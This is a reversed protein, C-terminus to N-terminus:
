LHEFGALAVPRGAADVLELGSGERVEGIWTPIVTPQMADARAAPCTFLLEYDDGGTAAFRVADDAVHELGAALPLRELEVHLAVGSSEALHRADTAIGDSVDIMSTVGADALALGAGLLPWPRRHRQVLEEAGDFSVGGRELLALGAASGGLSGTVGVLDGPRAGDRGVLRSEDGAWGTATVTAFLVPSATVDGGAIPVGCIAALEEMAGVLERAADDGFGSPLGLAVYAEGVDAGMAAIDSLATAMAKWGVDAPSHTALKFHVGDVVTDTTVAQVGDARVVAADDGPGRVVRGGREGLGAVFARILDLEGM